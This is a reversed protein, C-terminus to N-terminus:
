DVVYTVHGKILKSAAPAAGTLTLILTEEATTELGYTAVTQCFHDAGAAAIDVASGYKDLTGTIGIKAVVGAGMAETTLFIDLVRAGKPIKTLNYSDGDANGAALTSTNFYAARQRGHQENPKLMDFDVSNIKAMQASDTATVGLQLHLGLMFHMIAGMLTRKNFIRHM